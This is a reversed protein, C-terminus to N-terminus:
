ILEFHVLDYLKQDHLDTDNDWDGGWRIDRTMKEEQKLMKAIGKVVGAFYYFREKDKMDIPCPYVDVATSPKKNHNGDPWKKDSHGEVFAKDQAAQDRFGETVTCDFWQIVEDFLIQLEPHCTALKDSSAKSFTPM